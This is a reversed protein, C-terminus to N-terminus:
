FILFGRLCTDLLMEYNVWSHNFDLCLKFVIVNSAIFIGFESSIDKGAYPILANPGGPHYEIYSTLDYVKGHLVCWFDNISSHKAIEELTFQM